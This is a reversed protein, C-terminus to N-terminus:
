HINQMYQIQHQRRAMEDLAQRTSGEPMCLKLHNLLEYSANRLSKALAYIGATNQYFPLSVREQIREMLNYFTKLYLDSDGLVPEERQIQMGKSQYFFNLECNLAYTLKDSYYIRNSHAQAIFDDIAKAVSSNQCNLSIEHFIKEILNEMDIGMKYAASPSTPCNLLAKLNNFLENSSKANKAMMAANNRM